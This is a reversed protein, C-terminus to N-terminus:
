HAGRGTLVVKLTELLIKLDLFLSQHYIYILDYKLKNRATTAYVGSVQALGTIGPKVKLREAYGPIIKKYKEVFFPREPRPGVFSMEGKLINFLQPLEDIRYRRLLRGVPTVREDSETALVPGSKEEAGVKMTRFKYIRFLRESQGVREQRFFVPGPSTLKTLIAALLMIPSSIILVVLAWFIDITRKALYVWGPVPGKTLEVLPIDSILTHDVRGIFIEYLDPIVEVRVKAKDSKALDEILERHRIPSTVIVRDIYRHRVLTVIESITGIVEAREIKQGVRSPNRSLVGVVQYGWESRRRLERLIERAAEGTGVVLVRQIPWRIRLVKSALMRWVSLLVLVLLWSLAFVTRPFSLFRTFFSLAVALLTGLSVAKFLALFIDWLGRIEEVEYLNYIYLAGLQILTIFVALNTYAQFNFPPLRGGFRILFALVIGINICVADMVISIFLWKSRSM